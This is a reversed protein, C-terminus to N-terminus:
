GVLKDQDKWHGGLIFKEM